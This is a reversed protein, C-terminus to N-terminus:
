VNNGGQGVSARERVAESSPPIFPYPVRRGHRLPVAVVALGPTSEQGHQNRLGVECEAYGSGDIVYKDKVRGWATLISGPLDMARFQFSIKWLWGTPGVWDKMLQVLVQQKWSGSVLVDQLKEHQVAFPHDYHIRHWNEMASSWRMLHITSLPGKVLSPIEMGINIDEYYLAKVM